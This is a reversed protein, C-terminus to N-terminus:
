GDPYRSYAVRGFFLQPSRSHRWPSHLASSATADRIAYRVQKRKREELAEVSNIREDVAATIMDRLLKNFDNM